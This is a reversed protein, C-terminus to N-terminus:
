EHWSSMNVDDGWPLLFLGSGDLMILFKDPGTSLALANGEPSWLMSVSFGKWVERQESGDANMVYIADNAGFAIQTGDPSWLYGGVNTAVLVEGSGDPNIMYTGQARGASPDGESFFYIKTGDPSWVPHEEVPQSNTLNTLGSKDTNILYIDFKNDQIGRFAIRTGDPSWSPADAEEPHTTLRTQGSGDANMVYIDSNGDRGSVFAVKTGDPSWAATGDYPEDHTLRTAGTGDANMVYVDYNDSPGGTPFPLTARNSSFLIRGRLTGPPPLPPLPSCTLAFDVHITAGAEVVVNRPNDGNWDCNPHAWLLVEHLGPLFGRFTKSDNFGILEETGQDFRITYSDFRPQNRPTGTTSTSVRIAGTASSTSACQVEFATQVTDGAVVQVSRPNPSTSNCNAAVGTLELTHEGEALGTFTVADAQSVARPEGENLALMYGDPDPDPGTTTVLTELTGRREGPDVADSGAACATALLWM